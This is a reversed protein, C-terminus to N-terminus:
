CCKFLKKKIINVRPILLLLKISSNIVSENDNCFLNHKNVIFEFVLRVFSELDEKHVSFHFNEGVILNKYTLSKDLNNYSDMILFILEPVNSLELKNDKIVTNIFKDVSELFTPENTLYNIIKNLDYKLPVTEVSKVNIKDKEKSSSLVTLVETNRSKNMEEPTLRDLLKGIDQNQM